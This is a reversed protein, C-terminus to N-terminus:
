SVATIVCQFVPARFRTAVVERTPRDSGVYMVEAEGALRFTSLVAVALLLRYDTRPTSAISINKKSKKYIYIPRITKKKEDSSGKKSKQVENFRSHILLSLFQVQGSRSHSYSHSLTVEVALSFYSGSYPTITTTYVYINIASDFGPRCFHALTHGHTMGPPMLCRFHLAAPTSERPRRQEGDTVGGAGEGSLWNSTSGPAAPPRM